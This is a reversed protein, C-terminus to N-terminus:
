GPSSRRPATEPSLWFIPVVALAVLAILAGPAVDWGTRAVLLEAVWPTFGGFVATAATAGLALGTLRGEGPFQEATAVAGVASVGGAVGALVVAGLLARATSGEGMLAFMTMPLVAACVALGILVPKRGIRDSLMGALPTVAIVVVAAITALWLAETEGFAGVSTLFAPVYTIGVYYTISGLASIAFARAIGVRHHTLTHLIPRTPVTGEAKQREFDPSEQMTSRAIWVSGALAAGVLFPIRWGWGDLDVPSLLHVTLASVGVALLAGIESAASASSAILGRRHTPAGELLYAVVGTYEGGVSFGMVCRILLLLLGAAPGIQAYTPLIATALMAATMLAVSLLLARRRGLRDGIHGFVLAGIPRMLYAVAFGGLTVLLSGEGGGFFVRSLVTALYLYLTFDYWEVVTSFAAIAMSGRSMPRTVHPVTDAM